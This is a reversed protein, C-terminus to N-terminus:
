FPCRKGFLKYINTLIERDQVKPVIFGIHRIIGLENVVFGNNFHWAIGLKIGFKYFTIKEADIIAKGVWGYQEVGLAIVEQLRLLTIDNEAGQIGRTKEITTMYNIIYESIYAM